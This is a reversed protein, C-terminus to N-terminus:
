VVGSARRLLTTTIPSAVQDVEALNPMVTLCHKLGDFPTYGNAEAPEVLSYLIASACVGDLPKSFLLNQEEDTSLTSGGLAKRASQECAAAPVVTTDPLDPDNDVAIM